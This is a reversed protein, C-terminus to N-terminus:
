NKCPILGCSRANSKRFKVTVFILKLVPLSQQQDSLFHCPLGLFLSRSDINICKEKLDRCFALVTVICPLEFSVQSSQVRKNFILSKLFPAPAAFCIKYEIKLNQV